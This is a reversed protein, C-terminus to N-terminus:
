NEVSNKEEVAEDDSNMDEDPKLYNILDENYRKAIHAVLDTLSHEKLINEMIEYTREITLGKQKYKIGVYLLKVIDEVTMGQKFIGDGNFISVGFMKEVEVYSKITYRLEPLPCKDVM